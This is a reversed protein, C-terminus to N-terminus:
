ESGDEEEVEETAGKVVEVVVELKKGSEELITSPVWCWEPLSGPRKLEKVVKTNYLAGTKAEEAQATDAVETM